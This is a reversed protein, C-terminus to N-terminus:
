LYEKLIIKAVIQAINVKFTVNGELLLRPEYDYGSVRGGPDVAQNLLGGPSITYHIERQYPDNEVRIKKIRSWLLAEQYDFHIKRGMSDEIYELIFGQYKLHINNKGSPDIIKTTRGFCDMEYT